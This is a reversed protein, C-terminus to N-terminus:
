AGIRLMKCTVHRVNSTKSTGRIVRAFYSNTNAGLPDGEPRWFDWHEKFGASAWEGGGSFGWFYPGNLWYDRKGIGQVFARFDLGKWAADITIGYNSALPTTESLRGTARIM